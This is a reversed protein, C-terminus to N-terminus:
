SIQNIRNRKFQDENIQHAPTGKDMKGPFKVAHEFKGKKVSLRFRANKGGVKATM